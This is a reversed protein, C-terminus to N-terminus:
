FSLETNIDFESATKRSRQSLPPIKAISASLHSVNIKVKAAARRQQMNFDNLSTFVYHQQLARLHLIDQM